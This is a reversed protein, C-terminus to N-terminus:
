AFEHFPIIHVITIILALIQAARDAISGSGIKDRYGGIIQVEISPRCLVGLGFLV